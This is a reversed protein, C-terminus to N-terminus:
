LQFTKLKLLTHSQVFARSTISSNEEGLHITQLMQQLGPDRDVSGRISALLRRDVQGCTTATSAKEEPLQLSARVEIM